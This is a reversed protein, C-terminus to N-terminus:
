APSEHSTHGENLAMRVAGHPNPMGDRGCANEATCFGGLWRADAQLEAVYINAQMM